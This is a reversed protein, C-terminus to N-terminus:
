FHTVSKLIFIQKQTASWIQTMSMVDHKTNSARQLSWVICVVLLLLVFIIIMCFYVPSDTVNVDHM